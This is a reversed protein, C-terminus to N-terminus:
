VLRSRLLLENSHCRMEREHAKDLEQVQCLAHARFANGRCRAEKSKGFRMRVFCTTVAVLKEQTAPQNSQWNGRTWSKRGSMATIDCSLAPRVGAQSRLKWLKLGGCQATKM